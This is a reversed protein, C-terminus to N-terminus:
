LFLTANPEDSEADAFVYESGDSLTNETGPALSVVTKGAQKAYLPSSTSCHMSVGNLVLRVVDEKGADVILQGEDLTGTLVYTGPSNITVCSGSVSAGAGSVSATTGSFVIATASGEDWATYSDDEDFTVQPQTVSVAGQEASSASQQAASASSASSSQANQGSACGPLLASSLILAICTYLVKKKRNM